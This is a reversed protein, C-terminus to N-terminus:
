PLYFIPNVASKGHRIEFHLRPSKSNPPVGALAIKDGQGVFANTAVLNKKNFGYVTFYDDAHEIIILNGYGRIGNGSYIVKGPAAAVVGAGDSVAIEIGKNASDTKAGFPSVVKGQAPWVFIGKVPPKNASRKPARAAPTPAAPPAKQTVPRSPAPKPPQTTSPKTVAPRSASKPAAAVPTPVQRIRTVNPIFLREGAKLKKPDQIGNVHALEAEEIDYTKAIRYLTQGPKVTHYIGNPTCACLLTLLLGVLATALGPLSRLASISVLPNM